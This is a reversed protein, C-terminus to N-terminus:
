RLWPLYKRWAWDTLASLIYSLIVGLPTAIAIAAEPAKALDLGVGWGILLTFLATLGFTIIKRLLRILTPEIVSELKNLDLAM